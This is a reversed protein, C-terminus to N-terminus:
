DNAQIRKEDVRTTYKLYFFFKLCTRKKNHHWRLLYHLVHLIIPLVLDSYFVLVNKKIIQFIQKHKIKICM